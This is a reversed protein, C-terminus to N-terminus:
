TLKWAQRQHDFEITAGAKLGLLAYRLLRGGGPLATLRRLWGGPAGALSRDVEGYYRHMLSATQQHPHSRYGSVCTRLLYLDDTKAFRRWLDFDGALRLEASVCAGAQVWLDRTWFTSEQQIFGARRAEYVGCQILRRHFRTNMYAGVLAGDVNWYGSLGTLWRVKGRFQTFVSAVTRLCWPTYLDDSNIWAMIEGSTHAFGENIAAYMGDDPKSVWYTLRDGFKRIIEASGDSSGGDIIVYELKPYDQGLVSQITAEIFAAQNFSPTVISIVPWDLADWAGAVAPEPRQM